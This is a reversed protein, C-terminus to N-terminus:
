WYFFVSVVHVILFAFLAFTLPIHLILWVRLIGRYRVDLRARDLLEVQRALLSVLNRGKEAKDGDLSEALTRVSALAARIPCKPHRGSLQRIVGGGVGVSQVATRVVDNIEDNLTTALSHCNDSIEAIEDMLTDFTVNRRNATILTPVRVYAIAGFLGSVIVLIMVAYGLTHVNRGFQFGTHLTVLVALILGLYVHASLWDELPMRGVGYRRKRIGFWALWFVLAASVVGLTYGLWTGGNPEHVPQHVAYAVVAILAVALSVKLYLFNRYILISNHM